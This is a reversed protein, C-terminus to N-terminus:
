PYLFANTDSIFMILAMPWLCKLSGYCFKLLCIITLMILMVQKMAGEPYFLTAIQCGQLNANIVSRRSSSHKGMDYWILLLYRLQTSVHKHDRADHGLM